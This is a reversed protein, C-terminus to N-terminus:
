DMTEYLEALIRYYSHFFLKLKEPDKIGPRSELRSSADFGFLDPHRLKCVLDRINMYDLGGAVLFPGGHWHHLLAWDWTKGTGGFHGPTHADFLWLDVLGYYSAATVLTEPGQVSFGKIIQFPYNCRIAYIRDLTEKGSCQIWRFGVDKVTNLMSDDPDVVVAVPTIWPPLMELISKAQDPEVARPSRPDLVFGLADAGLRAATIADDARTIGCIKVRFRIRGVVSEPNSKGESKRLKSLSEM